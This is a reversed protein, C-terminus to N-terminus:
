KRKETPKTGYPKGSATSLSRSPQLHPRSRLEPRPSKAAKTTATPPSWRELVNTNNVFDKDGPQDYASRGVLTTSTVSIAVGFVLLAVFPVARTKSPHKM